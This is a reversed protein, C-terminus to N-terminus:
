EKNHIVMVSCPAHHVVYNSVSGLLMEGLGKRGHSGVVILDAEWTQALKCIVPGPSGIKQTSEAALGTEKARDVFDQLLKRTATEVAQYREVYLQWDGDSYPSFMLGDDNEPTLVSLLYLSAQTATALALAQNFVDDSTDGHDLAVLVKEM